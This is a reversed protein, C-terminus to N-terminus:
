AGREVKRKSNNFSEIIREKIKTSSINETYDITHTAGHRQHQSSDFVCGYERIWSPFDYTKQERVSEVGKIAAVIAARQAYDLIPPRGKYKKICDDTMIGVTLEDCLEACKAIFNVHGIHIIDACVACYGRVIDAM